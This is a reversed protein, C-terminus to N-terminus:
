SDAAHSVPDDLYKLSRLLSNRPDILADSVDWAVFLM